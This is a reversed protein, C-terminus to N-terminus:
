DELILGEGTMNWTKGTMSSIRNREKTRASTIIRDMKDGIYVSHGEPLNLRLSIESFVIPEGPPGTFMNDFVLLSDSLEWEYVIKDANLESYLQSSGRARREIVLEPRDGFVQSIRLSPRSWFRNMLWSIDEMTFPAEVGPQSVMDPRGTRLYKCKDNLQLYFHEQLHRQYLWM